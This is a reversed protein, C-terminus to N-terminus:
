FTSTGRDPLMRSLTRSAEYRLLDWATCQGADSTRLAVPEVNDTAAARSQAVFAPLLHRTRMTFHGVVLEDSLEHERMVCAQRPDFVQCGIRAGLLAWYTQELMSPIGWHRPNGVFWELLDLDILRRPVIIIGVNVKAPLKVEQSTLKQWSRLSYSPYRDELFLAPGSVDPIPINFRKLFLVDADICFFIPERCFIVADFAKKIQQYSRRLDLMNRFQGYEDAIREEALGSPVIEIPELHRHLLEKDDETLSGDDHIRLGLPVACHRLLSALCDLAM